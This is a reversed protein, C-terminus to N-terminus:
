ITAFEALFTMAELLPCLSEECASSSNARVGHHMVNLFTLRWGTLMSNTVFSRIDHM